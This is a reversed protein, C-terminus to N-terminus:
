TQAQTQGKGDGGMGGAVDQGQQRQPQLKDPTM